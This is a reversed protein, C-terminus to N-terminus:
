PIAEVKGPLIVESRSTDMSLFRNLTWNQVHAFMQSIISFDQCSMIMTSWLDGTAVVM